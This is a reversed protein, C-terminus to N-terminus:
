KMITDREAFVTAESHRKTPHPRYETKLLFPFYRVLYQASKLSVPAYLLKRMCLAFWMYKQDFRSLHDALCIHVYHRHNTKKKNKKESKKVFLGFRSFGEDPMVRGFFFFFVYSYHDFIDTSCTTLKKHFLIMFQATCGTQVCEGGEQGAWSTVGIM